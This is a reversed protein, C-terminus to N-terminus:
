IKEVLLNPDVESLTETFEYAVGFADGAAYGRLVREIDAITFSDM